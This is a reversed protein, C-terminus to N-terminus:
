PHEHSDGQRLEQHNLKEDLHLVTVRAARSAFFGGLGLAMMGRAMQTYPWMPTVYQGSVLWVAAGIPLGIVAFVLFSSVVSYPHNEWDAYRYSRKASEADSPM